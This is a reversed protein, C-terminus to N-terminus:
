RRGSYSLPLAKPASSVDAKTLHLTGELTSGIRRKTGSRTSKVPTETNPGQHRISGLLQHLLAATRRRGCSLVHGQVRFFDGARKAPLLGLRPAAPFLHSSGGAEARRTGWPVFARTACCAV